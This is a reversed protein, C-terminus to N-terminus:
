FRFNLEAPLIQINFNKAEAYEGDLHYPVLEECEITIQKTHYHHIFSLQLHRGKEIVPLYFLRKIPQLADAIIIDLLGDDAKAEPAIHFGGGARRGNSVDVLFMKGKLSREASEITYYKSRYTFINKLISIFFSTKGPRKKKGSLEKVVAGEFGIGLGNIFYRDNCKGIDIPKPARNLALQLQAELTQDGYLLWHFDNGTGGKFLVLPLHIGRYQNIFYNLTGDGGVIFIDSFGDFQDPWTENFIRYRIDAALLADGITKAMPVAAGAGALANCLIAINKKDAQQMLPKMLLSAM